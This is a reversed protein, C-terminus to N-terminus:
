MQHVIKTSVLNIISIKETIIHVFFLSIYSFKSLLMQFSLFYKYNYINIIM